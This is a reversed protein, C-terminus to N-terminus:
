VDNSESLYLFNASGSPWDPWSRDDLRDMGKAGGTTMMSALQKVTTYHGVASNANYVVIRVSYLCLALLLFLVLRLTMGKFPSLITGTGIDSWLVHQSPERSNASATSHCTVPRWSLPQFVHPRDRGLCCTSATVSM